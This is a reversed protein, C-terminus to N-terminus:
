YKIIDALTRLGFLTFCRVYNLRIVEVFEQLTELKKYNKSILKL